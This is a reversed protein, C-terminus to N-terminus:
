RPSVRSVAEPNLCGAPMDGAAAAHLASAAAECMREIAARTSSAAHGTLVVNDLAALPHGPPLPEREFVDLAAGAIQRARLADILAPEDVVAGRSTNVLIASPRLWALERRGLLSRTTAVLPVHLTVIDALRLADELTALVVGLQECLRPDAVPDVVIIRCAFGALRRAVAKGIAGFGVIVVTAGHLDRPLGSPRWRGDRVAADLRVIDRLATLMLALAFDAVTETLAGPTTCVLVGRETAAQVDIADYGVGTRAIVRLNPLSEFVRRDIRNSSNAVVAWAGEFAAILTSPDTADALDFREVVDFGAGRLRVFPGIDKAATESTLVVRRRGPLGTQGVSV